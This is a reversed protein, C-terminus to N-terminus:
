PIYPEPSDTFPYDLMFKELAAGSVESCYQWVGNQAQTKVDQTWHTLAIHQGKPFAKGDKKTWPVAKFKLRGNTDNEDLTAAIAKIAAIESTDDAATEDYWLITFGHELNHVLAELEPRGDATYYRNAAPDPAVGAENWHSGFAPPADDYTVQTGTPVHEGSGTAVKTEVKKCASAKAGIEDLPTGSYRAKEIATKVPNYAAVGVILLAVAICVGVIAMGQRKEASKQKRRIDDIVQRRDSKESKSSKAM